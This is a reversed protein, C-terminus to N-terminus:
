LKSESLPEAVVADRSRYHCFPANDHWGSRWPALAIEVAEAEADFVQEVVDEGGQVIGGVALGIGPREPHLPRADRQRAPRVAPGLARGLRERVRRRAPALKRRQEIGVGGDRADRPRRQPRLDGGDGDGGGGAPAVHRALIERDGGAPAM